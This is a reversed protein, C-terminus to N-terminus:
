KIYNIFTGQKPQQISLKKIEVQDVAQQVRNLNLSILGEKQARSLNFNIDVETQVKVLCSNFIAGETMLIVLSIMLGELISGWLIKSIKIETRNKNKEELLSNCQNHIWEM